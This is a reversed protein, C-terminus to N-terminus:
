IKDFVMKGSYIVVSMFFIMFDFRIRVVQGALMMQTFSEVYFVYWSGCPCRNTRSQGLIANMHPRQLLEDVGMPAIWPWWASVRVTYFADCALLLSFSGNKM